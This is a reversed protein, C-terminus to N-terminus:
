EKIIFIEENQKKMLFEERAFKEINEESNLEEMKQKDLEIKEEFYAIERKLKEIKFKNYIRSPINNSDFVFMILFFLVFAVVYKTKSSKLITNAWIKLNFKQNM